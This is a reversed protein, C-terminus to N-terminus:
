GVSRAVAACIAVALTAFVAVVFAVVWRIGVERRPASPALEESIQSPFPRRLSTRPHEPPLTPVRRPDFRPRVWVRAAAVHVPATIAEEDVPPFHRSDAM